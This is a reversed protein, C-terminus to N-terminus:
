WFDGRTYRERTSKTFFDIYLRVYPKIALLYLEPDECGPVCEGIVHLQLTYACVVPFMEM